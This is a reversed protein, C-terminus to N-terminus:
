VSQCIGFKFRRDEKHNDHISFVGRIVYGYPVQYDVDSDWDNVYGTWHCNRLDLGLPPSCCRFKFRRDEHHNNHVSHMGNIYGQNPCTYFVVADYDNVYDSWGCTVSSNAAPVQRCMFDFRRDEKKNNHTSKFRSFAFLYSPCQVDLPEDFDNDWGSVVVSILFVLFLPVLSTMKSYKLM